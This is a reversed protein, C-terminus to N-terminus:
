NMARLQKENAHFKILKSVKQYMERRTKKDSEMENISRLENKLDKVFSIAFMFVSYAFILLCAIFKFTYKACLWEAVM